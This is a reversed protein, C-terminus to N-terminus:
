EDLYVSYGGDEYLPATASPETASKPTKPSKARLPNGNEDLYPRATGDKARGRVIGDEGVHEGYINISTKAGGGSAGARRRGAAKGGGGTAAPTLADELQKKALSKMYDPTSPNNLIDILEEARGSMGGPMLADALADQETAQSQSLRSSASGGIVAGALPALFAALPSGSGAAQSMGSKLLEMTMDYRDQSSMNPFMGQRQPVPQAAPQPQAGMAPRPMPRPSAMPAGGM